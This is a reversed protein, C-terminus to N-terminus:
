HTNAEAFFSEAGAWAIAGASLYGRFQLDEHYVLYDMAFATKDHVFLVKAEKANVTNVKDSKDWRFNYAYMAQRSKRWCRKTCHGVEQVGFFGYLIAKVVASRGESLSGGCACKKLHTVFKPRSM